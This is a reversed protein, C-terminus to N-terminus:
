LRRRGEIACYPNPAIRICTSSETGRVAEPQHRPSFLLLKNSILFDWPVETYPVNRPRSVRVKSLTDRANAYVLSHHFRSIYRRWHGELLEDAMRIFIICHLPGRLGPIQSSYGLLRWILHCRERVWTFTQWEIGFAMEDLANTVTSETKDIQQATQEPPVTSTRSIKASNCVLMITIFSAFPTEFSSIIRHLLVRSGHEFNDSLGCNSNCTILRIVM